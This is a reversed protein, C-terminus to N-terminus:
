HCLCTKLKLFAAECQQNWDFKKTNDKTTLENLPASITAYDKIFRRYYGSLGLFSRVDKVNQPSPIKNIAEIKSPIPRIGKECIAHGLYNVERAAITCKPLNLRLNYQHFRSLVSKLRVCHETITHSFIIIDDLYCLCISYTLGALVLAMARQFTAPATRLGFPMRNFEYLGSETVFATKERDDPHIPIQWYGSKLDLTTFYKASGVSDLLDDVRPLPHADHRTIQNLKRYDVCFRIEGSKKRVLVIPSVWPSTSTRIIGQDLMDAIQKDSEGRFAYPARRARQRIPPNDGTDITHYVINKQGITDSFLEEYEHLVQKLQQKETNSLDPDLRSDIQLAINDATVANCNVPCNNKAAYEQEILPCFEAM